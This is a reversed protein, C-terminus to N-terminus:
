LFFYKRLIGSIEISILYYENILLIEKIRKGGIIMKEEKRKNRRKLTM